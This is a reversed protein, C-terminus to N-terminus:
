IWRKIAELTDAPSTNFCISANAADRHVLNLLKEFLVTRSSERLGAGIVVCDFKREALKNSLVTEATKGLDVLCSVVDIGANRVRELQSDIFSQVLEPTLSPLASFDVFKPDLGLALVTKM